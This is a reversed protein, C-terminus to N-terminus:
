KCINAIALAYMKVSALLDDVSIHENAGHINTKAGPMEPGFAVGGEIDHVYTGGGTYLCYGKEGTVQEYANLLVQIFPSDEPVHHSASSHSKVTFGQARFKADAVDFCNDKNACMPVRSDCYGSFHGNELRTLNYSLTLKGSVEDEMAIDLAKGCTDGHPLLLALGKLMNTSQTKALPLSNLIAVLATIANNGQEPTAAHAPTGHVALKCGGPVATTCVTVGCDKAAPAALKQAEEPSLGLLTAWADEAVINGASGGEMAIVRPLATEEPLDYTFTPGYHGKETNLVPFNADPTFSWPASTERAFFYDLDGSGSEEDTGLILRVNGNLPLGLERIARMAYIATVAPGKDDAVGRGYICDDKEAMVFPDTNWGNGENVVDLHALIDLCAPKDNLLAAGAYNDYNKATLGYKECMALATNLARAPEKGFPANEAAEGRKSPISILAAIDAIMESRHNEAWQDIQQLIKDM